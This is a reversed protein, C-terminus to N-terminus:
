AAASDEDANVDEDPRDDDTSMAQMAAVEDANLGEDSVAEEIEDAGEHSVSDEPIPITQNMGQAIYGLGWEEGPYARQWWGYIPYGNTGQGDYPWGKPMGKNWPPLQYRGRCSGQASCTLNCIGFTNCYCSEASPCLVAPKSFLIHWMYEM